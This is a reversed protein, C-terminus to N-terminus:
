EQLAIKRQQKKSKKEHDGEEEEEEEEEEEVVKEEEEKEEEGEGEEEEEKKENNRRLQVNKQVSYEEAKVYVLMILLVTDGDPSFFTFQFKGTNRVTHM